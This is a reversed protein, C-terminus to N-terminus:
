NVHIELASHVITENKNILNIIKQIHDFDVKDPFFDYSCEWFLEPDDYGFAIEDSDSWLTEFGSPRLGKAMPITIEIEEFEIRMLELDVGQKFYVHIGVFPLQYYQVHCPIKDSNYKEM